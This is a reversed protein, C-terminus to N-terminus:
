AIKDAYIMRGGALRISGGLMSVEHVRQGQSGATISVIGGTRVREVLSRLASSRDRGSMVLRESLFRNEGRAWLPNLLKVALRSGAYGHEDTSLHSVGFGSGHLAAKTAVTHWSTPAIWLVVGRGGALAQEIQEGGELRVRPTWSRSLACRLGLLRSILDNAAARVVIEGARGNATLGWDELRRRRSDTQSRRVPVSLRALGYALPWWWRYPLVLAVIGSALVLAALGVDRVMRTSAVRAGCGQFLGPRDHLISRCRVRNVHPSAHLCEDSPPRPEDPGREQMRQERSAVLDDNEVVEDGAVRLPDRVIDLEVFGVQAIRLADRFGADARVDDEM